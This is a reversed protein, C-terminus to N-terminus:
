HNAVLLNSLPQKLLRLRNAVMQCLWIVASANRCSWAATFSLPPFNGSRNRATSDTALADRNVENATSSKELRTAVDEIRMKGLACKVRAPM